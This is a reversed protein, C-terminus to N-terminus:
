LFLAPSIVELSELTWDVGEKNFLELSKYVVVIAANDGVDQPYFQDDCLLGYGLNQVHFLNPASPDVVDVRPCFVYGLLYDGSYEFLVWLLFGGLVLFKVMIQPDLQFDNQSGDM